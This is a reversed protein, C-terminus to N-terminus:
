DWVKYPMLYTMAEDYIPQFGSDKMGRNEFMRMIQLKLGYKFDDPVASANEWGSKFTVEASQSHVGETSWVKGIYVQKKNLGQEKYDSYDEPTGNVYRKVSSIEGHNPFPLDIWGTAQLWYARLTREIISRGLTNQIVAIAGAQLTDIITDFETVSTNIGLFDKVESTTLPTSLPAVTQEVELGLQSDSYSTGYIRM